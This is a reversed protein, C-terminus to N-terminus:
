PVPKPVVPEAEAATNRKATYDRGLWRNAWASTGRLGQNQVVPVHQLLAQERGEYKLREYSRLWICDGYGDV